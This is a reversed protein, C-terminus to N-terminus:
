NLDKEDTIFFDIILQGVEINLSWVYLLMSELTSELFLIYCLMGM